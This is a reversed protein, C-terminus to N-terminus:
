ALYNKIKKAGNEDGKLIQWALESFAKRANEDVYAALINQPANKEAESMIPDDAGYISFYPSMMGIKTLQKQMPESVLLGIFQNCLNFIKTEDSLVSIYQYLDSFAYLPKALVNFERTIFRYVDRQSGLMYKYEGGILATYARVSPMVDFQGRMGELAAAAAPFAGNGQSIVTNTDSVDTFDGDATFLMYGGRCWPVGYAAGGSSTAACEYKKLPLAYDSVFDIGTGYSILDPVNGERLANAASEASHAAVMVLVGPNEKEFKKAVTSLFSSRAGRGGEFSDIQWVRLIGSYGQAQPRSKKTLAPYAFLLSACVAAILLVTLIFVSVKERKKAM